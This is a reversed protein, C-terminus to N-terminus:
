NNSRIHKRSNEGWAPMQDSRTKIQRRSSARRCAFPFRHVTPPPLKFPSPLPPRFPPRFLALFFITIMLASMSSSSCFSATSQAVRAISSNLASVTFFFFSSCYHSYPNSITHTHTNKQPPYTYHRHISSKTSQQQNNMRASDNVSSRKSKKKLAECQLVDCREDLFIEVFVVSVLPVADHSSIEPREDGVVRFVEDVQVPALCAAFVCGVFIHFEGVRRGWSGVMFKIETASFPSFMTVFVIGPPSICYSDYGAM